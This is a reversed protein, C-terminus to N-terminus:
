QGVCCHDEPSVDEVIRSFCSEVSATVLRFSSFASFEGWQKSATFSRVQHRVAGLALFEPFKILGARFPAFSSRNSGLNAAPEGHIGPNFSTEGQENQNNGPSVEVFIRLSSHQM